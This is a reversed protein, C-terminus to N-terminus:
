VTFHSNHWLQGTPTLSAPTLCNIKRWVPGGWVARRGSVNVRALPPRLARGLSLVASDSLAPVSGDVRETTLCSTCASSRRDDLLTLLAWAVSPNTSACHSFDQLPFLLSLRMTNLESNFHSKFCEFFFFISVAIKHSIIYNWGIQLAPNFRKVLSMHARPHLNGVGSSSLHDKTKEIDETTTCRTNSLSLKFWLPLFVIQTTQTAKLSHQIWTQNLVLPVHGPWM